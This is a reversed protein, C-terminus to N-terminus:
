HECAKPYAKTISPSINKGIAIARDSPNSMTFFLLFLPSNKTNTLYVPCSVYPFIKSLNNKIFCCIDNIEVRQYSPEDFLTLQPNPKFLGDEWTETGLINFIIRRMPESVNGDKKYM